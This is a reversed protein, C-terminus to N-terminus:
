EEVPAVTSLIFIRRVAENGQAKIHGGRGQRRALIGYSLSPGDSSRSLWSKRRGPLVLRSPCVRLLDWPRETEGEGALRVECGVKYKSQCRALLLRFSM